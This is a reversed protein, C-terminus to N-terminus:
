AKRRARYKKILPYACSICSAALLVICIPRTVISQLGAGISGTRIFTRTLGREALPGLIYGLVVASLDVHLRKLFYGIVGCFLM